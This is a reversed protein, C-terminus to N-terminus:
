PVRKFEVQAKQSEGGQTVTAEGTIHDGDMTLVLSYLVGDPSTVEATIKNGAVKGNQIPWQESEDPGGSGTLTAGSQKVIMYASNPAEPKGDAGIMALTGSWKGTVDAAAATMALALLLLICSLVRL